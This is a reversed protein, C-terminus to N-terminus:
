GGGGPTETLALRYKVSREVEEFGVAQHALQADTEKLLADSALERLGRARCWAIAAGVLLRGLERGRMEEEVFWGELFGVPTSECGDAYAREGVEAFGILSGPAREIVLVVADQRALWAEADAAQETLSGSDPWLLGRMRLWEAYDGPEYSRVHM